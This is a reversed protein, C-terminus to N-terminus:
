LTMVTLFESGAVRYGKRDLARLIGPVHRAGYVVGITVPHGPAIEKGIAEVAIGDRFGILLEFVRDMDEDRMLDRRATLDDVGMHAAFRERTGFFRLYLGYLPSLLMVPLRILPLKWWRRELEAGSIDGVVARNGLRSRSMADRQLVLGLRPTGAALRYSMTVFWATPSRVGELVIRDCHELRKMVEEYFGAEAIHVMPFLIIVPDAAHRKLTLVASRVGFSTSEVIQL